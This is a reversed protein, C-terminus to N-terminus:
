NQKHQVHSQVFAGTFSITSNTFEPHLLCLCALYLLFPIWCISSRFKKDPLVFIAILTHFSFLISLLFPHVEQKGCGLILLFETQFLHVSQLVIYFFPTGIFGDAVDGSTQLIWINYQVPIMLSKNKLQKSLNIGFTKKEQKEKSKEKKM